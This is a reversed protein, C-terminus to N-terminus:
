RRAETWPGQDPWTPGQQSDDAYSVAPRGQGDYSADYAEQEAIEYAEPEGVAQSAHAVAAALEAALPGASRILPLKDPRAHGQGQFLHAGREDEAVHHVGAIPVDTAVLADRIERVTQTRKPPAVVAVHLPAGYAGGVADSVPRLRHRLHVVESPDTGVLLVVAHASSLLANQPTLAGIRGLDAIVDHRPLGALVPGLQPWAPQLGSAQEPFPPGALVELGGVVQQLHADVLEAYLSRRGAAVLSLLGTQPDLASGDAGPLRTAVDGGSPDCEAVVVPRPWLAGLVLSTTTVGPAGKASALAILAM